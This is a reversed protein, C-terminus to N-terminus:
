LGRVRATGKHIVRLKSAKDHGTRPDKRKARPKMTGVRQSPTMKALHYVGPEFDKSRDYSTIERGVTEPTIYRVVTDGEVVYSRTLGIITSLGHQRKFAKVMACGSPDGPKASKADTPTVNVVVGETADVLKTVNPFKRLVSRPIRSSSRRGTSVQRQPTSFKRM